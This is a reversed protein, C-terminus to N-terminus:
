RGVRLVNSGTNAAALPQQDSLNASLTLFEQWRSMGYSREGFRYLAFPCGGHRRMGAPLPSERCKSSARLADVMRALVFFRTDTLHVYANGQIPSSAGLLWLLAPRRRPRLIEASKYEGEGRAGINRGSIM